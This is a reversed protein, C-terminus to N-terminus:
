SEEWVTRYAGLGEFYEFLRQYFPDAALTASDGVVLLKRRARTLAVNTRRVDSLFGIEGAPNSRVLSIVIAEKERGQFGDVSDIELGPADGALRERLLRVQAAYPAIVAIHEPAVGAELLARVKSAVLEAERPNLRSEGDPETEEDYGAGATDIFEVPSETLPCTQVGPLDCLRHGAVAADATLEAEYFELSSFEMIAAHMRYQVSLRRAADGGYLGVLREFLSVGFGQSQAEGSLVAPPLQCHDGALVVREARALPIWCGPEASQCAEDIVLLDFRRAGLLEDDLGTTTACLVDATDLIHEVAMAELRRADALLSRAEQRTERRAGPEPKARTYRDAKRFLAWAEKVLKRALAVDRHEEVLLDLTHARLEPLVRAPHGLRVAREGAALLREFINDVALNSPACALVKDGRRVAQRILEVVATTKGTGPPGHIMAVDRASLAFRVAEAQVENLGANLPEHDKPPTFQPVREGLLVQRLEAFRDARAVRARELASRQRQGSIEDHALDVRWADYEEFDDPRSTLAVRLFSEQRECVVGRYGQGGVVPSVLVPTGVGLRTWPLPTRKRKVLKVLYRGGLGAEEDAVALDILSNGSREAEAASLKRGRELLREAEAKSELELLRAQRQFHDEGAASSSAAGAVWARIRRNGLAAGDLAKAVRTEWGEPTEVTAQTGQLEIRGVRKRDLGGTRGLLELLDSKTTRPPLSELRVLPM